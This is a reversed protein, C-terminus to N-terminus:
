CTLQSFLIEQDPPESSHTKKSAKTFKRYVNLVPDSNCMLRIFIDRTNLSFSMKRALHERYRRVLKNSVEVAEESFVKLGHSNNCTRILESSHALLKHLTPSINALPVWYLFQNKDLFCNRAVNGTSTTGGDSSPQDIKMGTKEMLLGSVFKMSNKIGLSSPSWKRAGSQLHYVLTMFWRFICLYSHLPSSCIIDIDSIPQHTLGLRDNSSLSLFEVENVSQFLEKASTISRNIPFGDRILEVDHLQKFTATCLQCHAGGAGSLIGAMKGDFMTRLLKIRVLGQSLPIGNEEMDAVYPNIYTDM